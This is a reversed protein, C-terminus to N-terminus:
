GLEKELLLASLEPRAPDVASGVQSFGNALYFAVAQGNAEEAELRLTRAEPFCREIEELLLRGIGSRQNGPRVYLQRLLVVKPDDTAAAFAMGAIAKGDDAVLFESNPLTLRAKLSALSHAEATIENVREVGYIADYTAHWTEALLTKIAELDRESATRVFM